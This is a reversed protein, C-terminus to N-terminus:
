QKPFMLNALNQPQKTTNKNSFKHEGTQVAGKPFLETQAGLLYTNNYSNLNALAKNTQIHLDPAPNYSVIPPESFESGEEEVKM